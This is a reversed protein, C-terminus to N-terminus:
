FFIILFINESYKKETHIYITFYIPHLQNEESIREFVQSYKLDSNQKIVIVTQKSFYIIKELNCSVAFGLSFM